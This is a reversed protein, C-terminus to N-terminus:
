DPRTPAPHPYLRVKGLGMEDATRQDACARVVCPARSSPFEGLIGSIGNQHLGAMWAVGELQYDKLTAGTILAPQQFATKRGQGEGEKEEDGEDEGGDSAKARKAEREEDGEDDSVVRARKRTSKGKQKGNAKAPAKPQQRRAGYNVKVQDM